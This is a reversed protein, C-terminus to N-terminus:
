AEITVEGYEAIDSLLEALSDYESCIALMQKHDFMEANEQHANTGGFSALKEIFRFENYTTREVREGDAEFVSSAALVEDSQVITLKASIFKIDKM